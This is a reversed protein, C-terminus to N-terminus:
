LGKTTPELGVRGVLVMARRGGAAAVAHVVDGV